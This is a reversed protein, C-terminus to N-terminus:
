IHNVMGASCSYYYLMSCSSYETFIMINILTNLCKICYFFAATLILHQDKFHENLNVFAAKSLVCNQCSMHIGLADVYFFHQM